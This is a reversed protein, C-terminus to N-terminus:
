SDIRSLSRAMKPKTSKMPMIIKLNDTATIASTTAKSAEVKDAVAKTKDKKPPM